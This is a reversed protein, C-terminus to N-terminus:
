FTFLFSSSVDSSECLKWTQTDSLENTICDHQIMHIVNYYNFLPILREDVLLMFELRTLPWIEVIFLLVM